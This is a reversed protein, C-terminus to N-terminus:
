VPWLTSSCTITGGVSMCTTQCSVRLQSTGSMEWASGRGRTLTRTFSRTEVIAWSCSLTEAATLSHLQEPGTVQQPEFVLLPVSTLEDMCNDGRFCGWHPTIAWITISYVHELVGAYYVHEFVGVFHVCEACISFDCYKTILHQHVFSTKFKFSWSQSVSFAIQRIEQYQLLYIMYM